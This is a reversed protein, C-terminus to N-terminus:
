AKTTRTDDTSEKALLAKESVALASGIALAMVGVLHVLLREPIGKERLSPFNWPTVLLILFYLTAAGLVLLCLQRLHVDELRKRTVPLSCFFLIWLLGWSRWDIFEDFFAQAVLDRRREIAGVEGTKGAAAQPSRDELEGASWFHAVNSVTLRETYNEDIAPLQGRLFLWPGLMLVLLGCLQAIPLGHRVLDKPKPLLHGILLALVVCGALGLGENKLHGAGALSLACLAVLHLGPLQQRRLWLSLGLALLCAIGVDGGGGLMMQGSLGARPLTAWGHSLFDAGYLMPTVAALLAGMTAARAGRPRLGFAVVLPLCATWFALPIQVWRANWGGIKAVWAELIPIGFPYNPHTVMRGYGDPHIMGTIAESTPSGDYLLVQGRYGFHYIPDFENLPLVLSAVVSGVALLALTIATARSFNSPALAAHAEKRKWLLYGCGAAAVLPLFFLLHFSLGAALGATLGVMVAACGLLYSLALEEWRSRTLAERLPLLARGIVSAVLLFLLGGVFTM